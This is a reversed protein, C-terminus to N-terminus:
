ELWQDEDHHDKCAILSNTIIKVRYIFKLKISVYRRLTKM